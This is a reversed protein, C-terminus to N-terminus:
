RLAELEGHLYELEIASAAIRSTVGQWEETLGDLARQERRETAEAAARLEALRREAEERAQMAKREAEQAARM